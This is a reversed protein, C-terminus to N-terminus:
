WTDCVYHAQQEAQSCEASHHGGSCLHREYSDSTQFATYECTQNGNDVCCWCVMMCSTGSSPYYCQDHCYGDLPEAGACTKWTVFPPTPPECREQCQNDVCRGAAVGGADCLAFGGAPHQCEGDHTCATGPAKQGKFVARCAAMLTARQGSELECDALAAQWEALCSSAAGADFAGGAARAQVLEARLQDEGNHQCFPDLEFGGQTCCAEVATCVAASLQQAFSAEEATPEQQVPPTWSESQACAAVGLASLMTMAAVSATKATVAMRRITAGRRNSGVLLGFRVM